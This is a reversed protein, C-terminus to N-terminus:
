YYILLERYYIISVTLLFAGFFWMLICDATRRRFFSEELMQSYRLFFFMHLCFNLGIPGFFLFNTFLRWIEYKYFIADFNLYLAFPTTFEFYVAGSTAICATMFTKTVIPLSKYWEEVAAM